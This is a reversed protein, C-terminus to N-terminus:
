LQNSGLAREIAGGQRRNDAKEPLVPVFADDAQDSGPDLILALTGHDREGRAGGSGQFTGASRNRPEVNAIRQRIDIGPVRPQYQAEAAM